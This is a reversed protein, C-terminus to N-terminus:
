SFILIYVSVECMKDFKGEDDLHKMHGKFATNISGIQDLWQDLLGLSTESNMGAHVAGCKYHGCIVIHKVKLHELAYQMVSLSNLDTPLITNGINRHVFLESLQANVLLEPPARSDSCGIWLVDPSQGASLEAFISPNNVM